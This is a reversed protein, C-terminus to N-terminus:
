FALALLWVCKCNARALAAVLFQLLAKEALASWFSLVVACCLTYIMPCYTTLIFNLYLYVNRYVSFSTSQFGKSSM